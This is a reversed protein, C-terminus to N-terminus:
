RGLFQPPTPWVVAFQSSHADAPLNVATSGPFSAGNSPLQRGPNFNVLVMGTFKPDRYVEIRFLWGSRDISYQAMIDNRSITIDTEDKAGKKVFGIVNVRYGAIPNVRFTQKVDVIDGFTASLPRGDVTM